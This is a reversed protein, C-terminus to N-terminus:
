HPPYSELPRQSFRIEREETISVVFQNSTLLKLLIPSNKRKAAKAWELLVEVDSEDIWKAGWLLCNLLSQIEGETLPEENM